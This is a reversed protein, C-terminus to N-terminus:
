LISGGPFGPRNVRDLIEGYPGIYAEPDELKIVVWFRCNRCRPPDCAM